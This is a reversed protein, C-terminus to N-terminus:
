DEMYKEAEKSLSMKRLAKKLIQRVMQKTVGILDGIEELGYCKQNKNLGFRLAIVIRERKNLLPLVANLADMIYKKKEIRSDDTTGLMELMTTDSDDSITNDYSITPQNYKLFDTIQEETFGTAEVLEAMTPERNLKIELNHQIKFLRNINNSVHVPIRISKSNDTIYKTIAQRIWWTAFTSFKTGRNPDFKGVIKTLALNGEGILDDLSVGRNIYKKAISVVLRLNSYILIDYNGENYLMIEQERTLLPYQSIIELWWKTGGVSSKKEIDINFNDIDEDDIIYYGNDLLYNMVENYDNEDLEEILPNLVEMKITNNISESIISNIVDNIM